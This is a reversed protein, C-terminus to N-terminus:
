SPHEKDSTERPSSDRPSPDDDDALMRLAPTVPDDFQGKKVSWLFAGLFGLALTLSAGLLIVIANM